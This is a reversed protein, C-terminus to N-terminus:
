PSRASAAQTPANMALDKLTVYWYATKVEIRKGPPQKGQYRRTRDRAEQMLARFVDLPIEHRLYLNAVAAAARTPSKDGFERARDVAIRMVEQAEGTRGDPLAAELAATADEEYESIDLDPAILVLDCDDERASTNSSREVGLNGSGLSLNEHTSTVAENPAQLQRPQAEGADPEAQAADPVPPITSAAERSHPRQHKKFNVIQIYGNGDVEYRHIFGRVALEGLLRDVDADDYPLTEAKIKRPRDELRGERDAICWLGEFLLRGLPEIEALQENLFFGPKLTRLRSM